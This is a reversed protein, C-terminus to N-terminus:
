SILRSAFILKKLQRHMKGPDRGGELLSGESCHDPCDWAMPMNLDAHHWLNLSDRVVARNPLGFDQCPGQCFAGDVLFVYKRKSVSKVFDAEVLWFM